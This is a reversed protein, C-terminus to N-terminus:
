LVKWKKLVKKWVYHFINKGHFISRRFIETRIHSVQSRESHQEVGFVLARKRGGVLGFHAFVSSCM